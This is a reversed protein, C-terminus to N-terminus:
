RSRVTITRNDYDDDVIYYPITHDNFQLQYVSLKFQKENEFQISSIDIDKPNDTIHIKEAIDKIEKALEIIRNFNDSM